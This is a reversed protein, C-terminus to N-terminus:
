VRNEARRVVGVVGAVAALVSVTRSPGLLRRTSRWDSKLGRPYGEGELCHSNADWFDRM